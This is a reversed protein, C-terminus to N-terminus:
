CFCFSVFYRDYSVIGIFHFKFSICMNVHYHIQTQVKRLPVISFLGVFSVAFLFGIMWGLSLNKVNTPTNGEEAQSAVRASMGLLYSATGGSLKGGILM